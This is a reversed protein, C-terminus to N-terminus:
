QHYIIQGREPGVSIMRVPVGSIAEIKLIYAQAEIPLDEWRRVRTLDQQWGPMEQYLPQYEGM